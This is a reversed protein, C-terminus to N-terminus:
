AGKNSKYNVNNVFSKSVIQKYKPSVKTEEEIADIDGDTLGNNLSNLWENFGILYEMLNDQERLLVEKTKSM